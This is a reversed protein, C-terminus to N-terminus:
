IENKEDMQKLKELAKIVQRVQYPKAMKKNNKDMQINIRPNGEWYTKFIYHSGGTNRYEPFYRECINFLDNFKINKSNSSLLEIDDNLKNINDAM